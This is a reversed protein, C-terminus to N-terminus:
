PVRRPAPTNMTATAGLGARRAEARRHARARLGPRAVVQRQGLHDGTVGVPEQDVHAGRGAGADEGAHRDPRGLGGRGPGSPGRNGPCGVPHATRHGGIDQVVQHRLWPAARQSSTADRQRVQPLQVIAHGVQKQVV